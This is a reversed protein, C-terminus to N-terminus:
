VRLMFITVAEGGILGDGWFLGLNSYISVTM